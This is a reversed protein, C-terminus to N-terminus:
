RRASNAPRRSRREMPSGAKTAMARSIWRERASAKRSRGIASSTRDLSLRPRGPECTRQQTPLASTTNSSMSIRSRRRSFDGGAAPNLTAGYEGDGAAGDGHLGDDFIPKSAFGAAGDIRYFLTATIGTTAEDTIRATVTVIETSSPVAPSQSVNRILPAINADATSNAAGPTGSHTTSAAWNQGNNNSLALSVREMSSGGGDAATDWIWGRHNHDLPGRRRVAWDGEDAYEVQDIRNGAADVLDIQEGSNSLEGTWGGIVNAVGPHAAQFAAVNAAVALYAGAAITTGAPFTYDVGDAFRWGTLDVASGSRNHIEIFEQSPTNGLPHYMVETVVVDATPNATTAGTNAAGPSPALFYTEDSTGTVRGYSVDAYQQPFEGNDSSYSQAITTGDAAVLALFEGDNDLRFNTHLPQGPTTRNQNSAFVVLYAGPDLMVAPFTWKGLDGADDTLHWGALNLPTPDPNRIEIWDSFAGDDDALTATNEAMFETIIPTGALMLRPEASELGM